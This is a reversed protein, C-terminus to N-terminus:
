KLINSPPAPIYETRDKKPISERFLSFVILTVSSLIYIFIFGKPGFIQMLLGMFLPGVLSGCTYSLLLAAGVEATKDKNNLVDNARALALSYLSFAGFGIFFSLIKELFINEVISFLLGSAVLLIFASLMIANKRGFKDSFNGFFLQSLFGGCMALLLFVSADKVGGGSDLIFVSGMSFYGNILIGAVFSTVLALPVINFINPIFIKKRPPLKPEKIRIINIPISGLIIFFVSMTFIKATSLNFTLILVGIGFASYYIIEYFSLVRSRIENKSRANIWSEVVMVISFYSFGLMFRLFAWYIINESFGHMLSAIAFLATFIAYSRIYGYNSIFRYTFISSLIGGFFFCSTIMGIYFNSVGMNTLMIGASTIVLGNGIFVFGIGIFLAALIRITRRPSIM